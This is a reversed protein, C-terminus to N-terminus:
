AGTKLILEVGKFMLGGHEGISVRISRYEEVDITSNRVSAWDFVANCCNAYTEADVEFTIPWFHSLNHSDNFIKILEHSKM